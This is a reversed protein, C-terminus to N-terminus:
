GGLMGHLTAEDPLAFGLVEAAIREAESRTVPSQGGAGQAAPGTTWRASRPEGALMEVVTLGEIEGGASLVAYYVFSYGEEDVVIRGPGEQLGTAAVAHSVHPPQPPVPPVPPVPPMPPVAPIPQAPGPQAPQAAAPRADLHAYDPAMLDLFARMPMPTPDNQNWPNRLWVQGNAVAVLEYAHGAILGHPLSQQIAPPYDAKGRTSVIMPNGAALVKALWAETAPETGPRPDFQGARAPEGTLQTML